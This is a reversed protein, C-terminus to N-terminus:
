DFDFNGIPFCLKLVFLSKEWNKREAKDFLFNYAYGVSLFTNGIGIEPRYFWLTGNVNPGQLFGFKTVDVYFPATLRIPSFTFEYASKQVCRNTGVTIFGLSVPVTRTDVKKLKGDKLDTNKLVYSPSIFGLFSVEAGLWSNKGQMFNIAPIVVTRDEKLGHKKLYELDEKNQTTYMKVEDDLFNMRENRVVPEKFPYIEIATKYDNLIHNILTNSTTDGRLYNYLGLSDAYKVRYVDARSCYLDALCEPVTIKKTKILNEIAQLEADISEMKELDKIMVKQMSDSIIQQTQALAFLASLSFFLIFINRHWM